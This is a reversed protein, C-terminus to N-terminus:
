CGLVEKLLDFKNKDDLTFWDEGMRILYPEEKEELCEKMEKEDKPEFFEFVVKDKLIDIVKKYKLAIGQALNKNILLEQNEKQLNTVKVVLEGNDIALRDRQQKLQELLELDQKITNFDEENHNLTYTNPQTKEKLRELAELSKM